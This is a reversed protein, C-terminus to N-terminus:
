SREPSDPGSEPSSSTARRGGRRAISSIWTPTGEINGTEPTSVIPKTLRRRTHGPRVAVLEERTGQGDAIGRLLIVTADYAEAAYSPPSSARTPRATPRPSSRRIDDPARAAAASRAGEALEDSIGLRPDAEAETFVFTGSYGFNRLSTLVKGAVSPQVPSTSRTRIWSSSPTRTSRRLEPPRRTSRRGPRSCPEGLTEAAQTPSRRATAATTTWCCSAERESTARHPLERGRRGPRRGSRDGPQVREVGDKNLGGAKASPTIFTM